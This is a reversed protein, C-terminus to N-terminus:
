VALKLCIQRLSFKFDMKRCFAFTQAQKQKRKQFRRMLNPRTSLQPHQMTEHIRCWIAQKSRWPRLNKGGHDCAEFVIRIPASKGWGKVFISEVAERGEEM